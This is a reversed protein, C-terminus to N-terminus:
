KRGWLAWYVVAVVIATAIALLLWAKTTGPVTTPASGPTRPGGAAPTPQSAAPPRKVAVTPEEADAPTTSHLRTPSSEQQPAAAPPHQLARRYGLVATMEETDTFDDDEGLELRATAAGIRITHGSKIQCQKGVRSGDVYTGNSSDLECLLIEPGNALIICHQISVSADPIILHNQEGRGITTRERRLEYSQGSFKEDIFILKAM